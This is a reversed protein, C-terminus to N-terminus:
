KVGQSWRRNSPGERGRKAGGHEPYVSAIYIDGTREDLAMQHVYISVNPLTDIIKDTAADVIVLNQSGRKGSAESAYIRNGYTALSLPSKVVPWVGIYKGDDDFIDVRSTCNPIPRTREPAIQGPATVYPHLAGGCLNAVLVRGRSDRAVSHVTGFQGPGNGWSGVQKLFKGDKDFWVLRSNWYGDSVIVNGNPLFAVGTPGNLRDPGNGFEGLKGIEFVKTGDPRLKKVQHGDRDVVWFFGERDIFLHHAGIFPENPAFRGLYKGNRDFMNISAKGRYLGEKALPHGAWHDVDRTYLYVIGKADVAVGSGMEFKMDHPYQPWNEMLRYPAGETGQAHVAERGSLGVLGALGVGILVARWGRRQRQM